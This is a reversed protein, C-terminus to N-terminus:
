RTQPDSTMWKDAEQQLRHLSTLTVHFKYSTNHDGGLGLELPHVNVMSALVCLASAPTYGAILAGHRLSLIKNAIVSEYPGDLLAIPLDEAVAARLQEALSNAVIVGEDRHAGYSDIYQCPGVPQWEGTTPSLQVLQFFV